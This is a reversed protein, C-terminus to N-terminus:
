KNVQIGKFGKWSGHGELAEVVNRCIFIIDTLATYRLVVSSVIDSIYSEYALPLVM